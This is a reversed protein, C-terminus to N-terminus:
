CQPLRDLQHRRRIMRFIKFLLFIAFCTLIVKAIDGASGLLAGTVTVVPTLFQRVAFRAWARNRIYEAIPPSYKYYTAVLYKGLPNTLLYKERFRRLTIVNSEWPTGYIPTIAPSARAGSTHKGDPNGLDSRSKHAFQRYPRISVRGTPLELPTERHTGLWIGTRSLKSVM